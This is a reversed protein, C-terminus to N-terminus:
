EEFVNTRRVHPESRCSTEHLHATPLPPRHTNGDFGLLACPPDLRGRRAVAELPDIPSIEPRVNKFLLTLGSAGHFHVGEEVSSLTPHPEHLTATGSM